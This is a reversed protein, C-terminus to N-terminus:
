LNPNNNVEQEPVPVCVQTGPKEPYMDIGDREYYRRFTEQRESTLWLERNRERALAILAEDQSMGVFTMDDLDWDARYPNVIGDADGMRGERIAVEAQIMDAEAKSAILIDDGADDYLTQARVPVNSDFASLGPAPDIRGLEVWEDYYAYAENHRSGLTGDGVTWRIVQVDGYTFDYVDNYLDTNAGSYEAYLEFGEPVTAAVQAAETDRELWLLARAKGVRAANALDGLEAAGTGEDLARDANAIAADFREIAQEMIQDSSLSESQRIPSECWFEAIDTRALGGYLYGAVIGYNLDTLVSAYDENDLQEEFQMATTDAHFVARHMLENYDTVTANRAQVSREDVERRTPFTGALIFEDTFMGTYLAHTDIAFHYAGAIGSALLAVNEPGELRDVSLTGPTDVELISDTDCAAVSLAVVAALAGRSVFGARRSISKIM